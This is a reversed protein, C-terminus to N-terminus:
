METMKSEEIKFAKIHNGYLEMCTRLTMLITRIKLSLPYDEQLFFRLNERNNDFENYLNKLEKMYKDIDQYTFILFYLNFFVKKHM